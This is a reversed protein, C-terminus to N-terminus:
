KADSVVLTAEEEEAPETVAVVPSTAPQAITAMMSALSGPVRAANEAEILRIEDSLSKKAGEGEFVSRVKLSTSNIIVYRKTQSKTEEQAIVIYAGQVSLLPNTTITRYM